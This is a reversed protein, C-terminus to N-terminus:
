DQGASGLDVEVSGSRVVERSVEVEVTIVEGPVRKGAVFVGREFREDRAVTGLVAAGEVECRELVSGLVLSRRVDTDILLSERVPM